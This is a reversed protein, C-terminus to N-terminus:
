EGRLGEGTRKEEDDRVFWRVDVKVGGEARRHAYQAEPAGEGRLVRALEAEDADELVGLRDGALPAGLWVAYRSTHPSISDKARVLVALERYEFLM